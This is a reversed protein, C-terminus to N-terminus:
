PGFSPAPAGGPVTSDFTPVATGPTGTRENETDGSRDGFTEGYVQQALQISYLPGLEALWTAFVVPDQARKYEEWWGLHGGVGRIGRNLSVGLDFPTIPVMMTAALFLGEHDEMAQQYQPDTALKEVHRQAMVTAWAAGGFNTKQGAFGETLVQFLWKGAKLQYSLPWYLWYSNMIREINNRAPNGQLM